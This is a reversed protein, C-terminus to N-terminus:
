QIDGGRKIEIQTTEGDLELIITSNSIVGRGLIRFVVDVFNNQIKVDGFRESIDYESGVQYDNDSCNAIIQYKTDSVYKFTYSNLVVCGVPKRGALSLQQAFRLDGKVKEVAGKLVQRTQFDRYNAFGVTFMLAMTVVAILLEIM